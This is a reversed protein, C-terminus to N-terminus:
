SGCGPEKFGIECTTSTATMICFATEGIPTMEQSCPSISSACSGGLPVLATCTSTTPECYSAVCFQGNNDDCPQGVTPAPTCLGADCWTFLPCANSYPLGSCPDGPAATPRCVGASNETLNACRLGAACGATSGCPEDEQAIPVCVNPTRTLDCAFGDACGVDRFPLWWSPIPTTYPDGGTGFCPSGAAGPAHCAEAGDSTPICDLRAACPALACADGESGAVVCVHEVSCVADGGCGITPECAAGLQPLPQCSHPGCPQSLDCFGDACTGDLTCPSGLPLTPKLFDSRHCGSGVDRCSHTAVATLCAAAGAADFSLSGMTADLSSPAPLFSYSDLPTTTAALCTELQAANMLGCTVLHTCYAQALESRFQAYTLSPTAADSPATASPTDLNRGACSALAFILM